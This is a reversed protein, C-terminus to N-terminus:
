YLTILYCIIDITVSVLGGAKSKSAQAAQKFDQLSSSSSVICGNAAKAAAM